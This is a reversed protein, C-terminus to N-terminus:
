KDRGDFFDLVEQWNRCRTLHEPAGHHWGYEGFLVVDVGYDIASLCHEPNDDILWKAGIQKCIEGKSPVRGEVEDSFKNGIIHVYKEEVGFNKEIWKKTVKERSKDRATIFYIVYTESLKKIAKRAGEIPTIGQSNIEVDAIVNDYTLVGEMGLRKFLEEYYGWYPGPYKFHDDNINADSRENISEIIAGITYSVVDDIDIAIIQKM